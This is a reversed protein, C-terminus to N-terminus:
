KLQDIKYWSVPCRIKPNQIEEVLPLYKNREEFYIIYKQYEEDITKPDNDKVYQEYTIFEEDKIEKSIENSIIFWNYPIKFNIQNTCNFIFPIWKINLEEFNNKKVYNEDMKKIKFIYEGFNITKFDNHCAYLNDLFDTDYNLNTPLIPGYMLTKMFTSTSDAMKWDLYISVIPFGFNYPSFFYIMEAFDKEGIKEYITQYIIEATIYFPFPYKKTLINKFYRERFIPDTNIKNNIRLAYKNLFELSNMSFSNVGIVGIYIKPVKEFINQFDIKQYIEMYMKEITLKIQNGSYMVDDIWIIPNSNVKILNEISFDTIIKPEQFNHLKIFYIVLISIFYTSSDKRSVFLYIIAETFDLFIQNYLKIILNEINIFLQDYTIYETCEILNKAAKRRKPTLQSKIWLEAKQQNINHTGSTQKVVKFIKQLNEDFNSYFEETM